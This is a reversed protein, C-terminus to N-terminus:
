ISQPLYACLSPLELDCPTPEISKSILDFRYCQASDEGQGGKMWVGSVNRESEALFTSIEQLLDDIVLSTRDELHAHTQEQIDGVLRQCRDSLLHGSALALDLRYHIGNLQTSQLAIDSWCSVYAAGTLPDRAWPLFRQVEGSVCRKDSLILTKCISVTGDSVCSLNNECDDQHSCYDGEATNGSMICMAFTGGIPVACRDDGICVQDLENDIDIPCPQACVGIEERDGISLLCESGVGLRQTCRDDGIRQQEEVSCFYVCRSQGFQLVCGAGAECEESSHCVAGIELTSEFEELCIPVGGRDVTCRKGQACGIQRGPECVRETSASQCGMKGLISLYFILVYNVWFLDKYTSLYREM